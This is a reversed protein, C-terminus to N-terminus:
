NFSALAVTKDDFSEMVKLLGVLELAARMRTSPNLLKLNGGHKQATARYRVLTGIGGSDIGSVQSCELLLNPYGRVIVSRLETDLAETAGGMTLRGNLELLAVRGMLHEKMGWTM